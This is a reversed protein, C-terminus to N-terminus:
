QQRDSSDTVFGIPRKHSPLPAMLQWIADILGAIAQDHSSVKRELEELKAAVEKHTSLLQRLQVFARVVLISVEVARGSNLVSALM